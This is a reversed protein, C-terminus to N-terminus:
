AMLESIKTEYESKQLLEWERYQEDLKASAERYKMEAVQERKSIEKEKIELAEQM